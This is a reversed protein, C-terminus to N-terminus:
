LKKKNLNFMFFLFFVYIITNLQSQKGKKRSQYFRFVCLVRRNKVYWVQNRPNRLIQKVRKGLRFLQNRIPRVCQHVGNLFFKSQMRIVRLSPVKFASFTTSITKGFRKPPSKIFFRLFYRVVRIIQFDDKPNSFM